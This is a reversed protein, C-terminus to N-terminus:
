ASYSYGQAAMLQFNWRFSYFQSVQSQPGGQCYLLAPYKKAPDFDPPYIVWALMEKGDSAPVMRKEVKSVKLTNYINDNEHTLAIAEGNSPNLRYIETAHNMDQRDLILSKGAVEFHNHNYDGKTIVKLNAKAGSSAIRKPLEVKFIQNSGGAPVGAYLTREDAWTYSHFTFADYLNASVLVHMQEGSKLDHIIIDNVDSEYGPTKMSMWALKSGDPSFKPEKDYGMMGKTLNTTKGTALDVQYLESNTSVAWDKGNLKKAEYVVTKGDPSLTFSESGGFPNLPTDFKEGEMLDKFDTVQQMDKEIYAICIHNYEADSWHDWHRYMLDDIIYAEAKPLEPYLDATTQDLKVSKTFLLAIRGDPLDYAKINGIGEIDTIQKKDSGDPKMIHFQGGHSFGIMSGGKLYFAGYESGPMDTIQKRNLGDLSMYYLNRNGKNAEIDYNTVGYVMSKGDPSVTELSIRGLEWLLKPTMVKDQANLAATSLLLLLLAIKKM